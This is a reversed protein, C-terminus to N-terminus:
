KKKAEWAKIKDEIEKIKANKQIGTLKMGGPKKADALQKKLAAIAQNAKENKSQDLTVKTGAKTKRKAKVKEENIQRFETLSESVLKKM